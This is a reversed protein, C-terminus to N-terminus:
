EPLKVSRTLSFSGMSGVDSNPGVWVKFDGAEAGYELKPGYFALDRPTLQFHLTSSKGKQLWIRKFGRLQKVPRNVSGVLDRIYLQAVEAGDRDGVNKVTVSVDLKGNPAITKSSLKLPSYEFRSYSLGYGFPYLPDNTMDMYHSTFHDKASFPRGTNMHNYFLPIQGVTRPFTTTLHGSPNVKGTLVDAVAVGAESGLHWAELMAAVHQSEWELTLPRGSMVVLVVPKGTAVLAELLERQVGPLGIDARSSAEGSMDGREGLVAVVVDAQKATSVAADFGGKDTGQVDCGKATLVKMGRGQFGDAVSKCRKGEGQGAWTGLMEERSDALPGVLAVTKTSATLPLANKKNELLVISERAMDLSTQLNPKAFLTRDRRKVDCAAYPNDFLGKEFKVRLIRRTADDIMRMPVKGEHVLATLNALYSNSQMDMDLGANASERAADKKDKAYGHPIMESVSEWDSVVFGSFGWQKKLVDTLLFTNATAPIGDYENFASMVTRAGAQVAARYPPLYTELLARKSIDVTNYERGSMVAGYAAFHKVCAIVSDPARLDKGQFGHVRAKAIESGLYTDEGAGEAIRGWRPDRAVDVMPAFTWHQGDSAAEAAAVHATREIQAMDWSCSEALPTPFTTKYGHIVDLGFILPIHLRTKEVALKQLKRTYDVGIANLVSGVNGAAIGAEENTTGGPGTVMGGDSIQSMQGIKEALTMKRLLAEVKADISANSPKPAAQAPAGVVLLMGVLAPLRLSRFFRSM